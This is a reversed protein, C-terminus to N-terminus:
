WDVDEHSVSTAGSQGCNACNVDIITHEADTTGDTYHFTKGDVVHKGDKSAQCHKYCKSKADCFKCPRKKSNPL